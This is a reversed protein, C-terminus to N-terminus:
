IEWWSETIWRLLDSVESLWRDPTSAEYPQGGVHEHGAPWVGLPVGRRRPRSTDLYVPAGEHLRRAGGGIGSADARSVDHVQVEIRTHGLQRDYAARRKPDGLVEYAETIERFRTVADPDEPHSDPHVGMVLRRYAGVIDDRSARRDVELRTYYDNTRNSGM